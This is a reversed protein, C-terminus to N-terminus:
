NPGLAIVQMPKKGRPAHVQPNADNALEAARERARQCLDGEALAQIRWAIWKRLWDKNGATTRVGFVEAYKERHQSMTMAEIAALKKGFSVVM